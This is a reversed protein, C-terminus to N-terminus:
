FPTEHTITLARFKYTKKQQKTSFATAESKWCVAVTRRGLFEMVSWCGKIKGKESLRSCHGLICLSVSRGQIYIWILVTSTATESGWYYCEEAKYRCILVLRWNTWLDTVVWYVALQFGISKKGKASRLWLLKSSIKGLMGSSFVSTRFSEVASLYLLSM